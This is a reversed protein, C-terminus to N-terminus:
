LKQYYIGTAMIVQKIASKITTTDEMTTKVIPESPCINAAEAILYLLKNKSKSYNSHFGKEKKVSRITTTAETQTKVIPESPWTNAVEAILYFLNHSSTM